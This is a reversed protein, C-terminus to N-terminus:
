STNSGKCPVSCGCTIWRTTSSRSAYSADRDTAGDTTGNDFVYIDYPCLFRSDYRLWIPFSVPENHVITIIAGGRASAASERMRASQGEAGV